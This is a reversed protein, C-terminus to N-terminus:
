KKGNKYEEWTCSKFIVKNNCWRALDKQYRDFKDFPMVFPHIKYDEWLHQIRMLDEEPSSWYGILVYCMLKYPKIYDLLLEIKDDINDNPNDWAFKFAQYHKLEQLASGQEDTFLRIDFGQMDIPQNLSKLYDVAERWKPNAFFNNDM